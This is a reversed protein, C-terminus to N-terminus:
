APRYNTVILEHIEGRKTGDCNIARRAPVRDVRYGAYLDDFFRDEPDVNKPDSNSLMLRAGQADCRAYFAALRRQEEDSFRNKSYQTFSSTRNLPRYPPDFYVFSDQSICPESQTFDGLHITTNRLAISDARLVEEHLIRPNKYRGFPVNFAGRSNVRYLGNFCTRNLFIFQGAREIWEEGYRGFYIEERERNFADRMAYYYDRRRPEDKSLFEDEVERLYGILSSVNNKVVSYALVLEANIDFLHCERFGFISNFHFYVAGGGMFPEVFVPLTGEALERPVRQTFADLLQAKGGAWKLFPRATSTAM